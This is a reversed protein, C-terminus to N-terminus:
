MAAPVYLISSAVLGVNSSGQCVGSGTVMVRSSGM